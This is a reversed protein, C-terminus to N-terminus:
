SNHFFPLVIIRTVCSSSMARWAFLIILNLSPKTSLYSTFSFGNIGFQYNIISLQYNSYPILFQSNPFLFYSIPFQFIGYPHCIPLIDDNIQNSIGYPHCIPLIDDNIQNSFSTPIVNQYFIMM